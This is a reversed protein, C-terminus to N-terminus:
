QCATSEASDFAEADALGEATKVLPACFRGTDPDFVRDWYGAAIIQDDMLVVVLKKQQQVNSPGFTRAGPHRTEPPLEFRFVPTKGTIHPNALDAHEYIPRAVVLLAPSMDDTQDPISISKYGPKPEHGSAAHLPGDVFHVSLAGANALLRKVQESNLAVNGGLGHEDRDMLQTAALAAALAIAFLGAVLSGRARSISQLSFIGRRM